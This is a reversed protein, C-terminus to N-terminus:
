VQTVTASVYGALVETQGRCGWNAIPQWSQSGSSGVPYWVSSDYSLDYTFNMGRGPKHVVPIALHSNLNALNIIDPGGSFSGFPPTGTTVQASVPSSACVVVVVLFAFRLAHSM